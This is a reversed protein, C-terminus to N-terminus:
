LQGWFIPGFFWFGLGGTKIYSGQARKLKYEQGTLLPFLYLQRKQRRCLTQCCSTLKKPIALKPSKSWIKLWCKGTRQVAINVHVLVWCFIHRMWPASSVHAPMPTNNPKKQRKQVLQCPPFASRMKKCNQANKLNKEFTHLFYVNKRVNKKLKRPM